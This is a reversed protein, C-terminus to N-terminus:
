KEMAGFPWTRTWGVLSGPLGDVQLLQDVVQLQAADLQRDQDAEAVDQPLPEAVDVVRELRRDRLVRVVALVEADIRDLHVLLPLHDLFHEVEAPRVVEAELGPQLGSSSATIAIASLSVGIMQLPKLSASNMSIAISAWFIPRCIMGTTSFYVSSPSIRSYARFTPTRGCIPM